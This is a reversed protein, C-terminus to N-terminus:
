KYCSCPETKKDVMRLLKVIEGDEIDKVEKFKLHRTTKGTGKFNEKDKETLGKVSFGLNVSDKLSVIYYKGYWAVGLKMRENIELFTQLIITRLKKCIEKQLPQQKNFYDTVEKNM